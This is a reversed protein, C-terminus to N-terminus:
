DMLRSVLESIGEVSNFAEPEIAEILIIIFYRKELEEILKILEFSNIFGGTILNTEEEFYGGKLEKLIGLIESKLM